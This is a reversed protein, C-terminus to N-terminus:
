IIDTVTGGYRYQYNMITRLWMLTCVSITMAMSGSFGAILSKHLIIKLNNEKKTNEKKKESSM